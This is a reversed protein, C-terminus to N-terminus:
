TGTCSLDVTFYNITPPTVLLLQAHAKCPLSLGHEPSLLLPRCLSYCCSCITPVPGHLCLNGVTSGLAGYCALVPFTLYLSVSVHTKAQLRVKGSRIKKVLEFSFQPVQTTFPARGELTQILSFKNPFLNQESFLISNM